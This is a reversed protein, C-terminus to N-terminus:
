PMSSVWKDQVTSSQKCDLQRKLQGLELELAKQITELTEIVALEAKPQSIKLM